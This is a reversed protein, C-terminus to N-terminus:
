PEVEQTDPDPYGGLDSRVMSYLDKVALFLVWVHQLTLKGDHLALQVEFALDSVKGAAKIAEDRM